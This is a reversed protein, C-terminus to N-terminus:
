VQPIRRPDPEHRRAQGRCPVVAVPSCGTGSGPGTSLAARRGARRARRPRAQPVRQPSADRDDEPVPVAAARDGPQRRGARRDRGRPARRAHARGARRRGSPAPARRRAAAGLPRAACLATAGCAQATAHADRLVARASRREGAAGHRAGLETMCRALELPAPAAAFHSAAQELLAIAQARPAVLARMRALHGLARRTGWYRAREAYSDAQAAAESSRDALVLAEALLPQWPPEVRTAFSATSREVADALDEAARHVDGQALRLRGRSGVAPHLLGSPGIAGLLGAADLLQEAEDLRNQEALALVLWPTTMRRMHEGGAELAARSELECRPLDGRQYALQAQQWLAAAVTHPLATAEADARLADMAREADELAGANILLMVAAFTLDAVAYSGPFDRHLRWGLVQRAAGAPDPPAQGAVVYAAVSLLREAPTRPTM